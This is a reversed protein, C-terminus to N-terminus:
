NMFVLTGLMSDITSEVAANEIDYQLKVTNGGHELLVFGHQRGGWGFVDPGLRGTIRLASTGAVTISQESYGQVISRRIDDLEDQYSTPVVFIEIAAPRDGEVDMTSDISVKGPTSITPSFGPPFKFKIGDSLDSFENWVNVVVKLTQPLTQSGLRVHITGSYSGPTTSQSIAFSIHVSQPQNAPVSAFSSPQITLFGAVEPVAEVVVNQLSATSTFTIDSSASEGPSLIPAINTTSWTIKPQSIAAVLTAVPSISVSPATFSAPSYIPRPSPERGLLYLSGGAVVLVVVAVFVASKPHPNKM